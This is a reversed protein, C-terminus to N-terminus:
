PHAPDKGNPGAGSGEVGASEGALLEQLVQIAGSIRLMTQQLTAQKTALESMLKEGSALEAKLEELRKELHERM